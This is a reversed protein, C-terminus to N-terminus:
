VGWKPKVQYEIFIRFQAFDESEVITGTQASLIHAQGSEMFDALARLAKIAAANNNEIGFPLVGGAKPVLLGADFITATEDNDAM